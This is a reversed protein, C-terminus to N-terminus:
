DLLSKVKDEVLEYVIDLNAIRDLLEWDYLFQRSELDVEVEITQSETMSMEINITAKGPLSQAHAGAHAQFHVIDHDIHTNFSTLLCLHLEAIIKPNNKPNTIDGDGIKISARNVYRMKHLGWIDNSSVEGVRM